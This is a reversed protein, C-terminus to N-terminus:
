RLSYKSWRREGEKKLIKDKVLGILERQITKESCGSIVSTIDKITIHGKKRVVSIIKEKRNGRIINKNLVNKNKSKQQQTSHKIKDGSIFGVSHHNSYQGKNKNYLVNNYLDHGKTLGDKIDKKNIDNKLWTKNEGEYLDPTLEFLDAFASKPYGEQLLSRHLCKELDIYEKKLIDANMESILGGYFAIEICSIIEVINDLVFSTCEKREALTVSKLSLVGSLLSISKERLKTKLIETDSILSTVMYVASALKETKKLLFIVYETNVTLKKNQQNINM